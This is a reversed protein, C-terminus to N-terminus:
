EARGAYTELCRNHEADRAGRGGVLQSGAAVGRALEGWESRNQPDGSVEEDGVLTVRVAVGCVPQEGPDEVRTERALEVIERYEDGDRILTGDTEDYGAKCEFTIEVKEAGISGSMEFILQDEPPLSPNGDYLRFEVPEDVGRSCALSASFLVILVFAVSARKVRAVTKASSARM